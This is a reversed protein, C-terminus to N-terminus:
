ARLQRPGFLAQGIRLCTSGCAVALELDSSMGLSLKGAGVKLAEAKLALFLPRLHSEDGQPPVSMLGQLALQPIKEVQRVLEPLEGLSVGSKQAEQGLNVAIYVPYPSKGAQRAAEAIMTAHRLSSVTQLACSHKVIAPIKRSQIQGIFHWNIELDSLEQSKASLEQQYNEGFDRLGCEYAARIVAAPQGKSVALLLVESPDRQYKLCAAHIRAKVQGINDQIPPAM